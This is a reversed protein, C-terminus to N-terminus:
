ETFHPLDHVRSETRCENQHGGAARHREATHGDCAGTSHHAVHRALGLFLFPRAIFSASRRLGALMLLPLRWRRLRTHFRLTRGASNLLAVITAAAGVVDRTIPAADVAVNRTASCIAYCLGAIATAVPITTPV